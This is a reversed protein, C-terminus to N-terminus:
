TMNVENMVKIKTWLTLSAKEGKESWWKEYLEDYDENEEDKEDRCYKKRLESEFEKELEKDFEADFEKDFESSIERKVHHRPRDGHDGDGGGFGGFFIKSLIFLGVAEWYSIARLAFIDVMLRNWLWMIVFGLLVAVGVGLIGFLIGKIVKKIVSKAGQAEEYGCHERFRM